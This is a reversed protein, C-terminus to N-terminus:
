PATGLASGLEGGLLVPRADVRVRFLTCIAQFDELDEGNNFNPQGHLQNATFLLHGDNALWLTDPWLARPDSARLTETSAM